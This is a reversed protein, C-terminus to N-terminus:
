GMHVNANGGLGNYDEYFAPYSKNVSHADSVTVPGDCRLAAASVAMVVRHDNRGEVTGGRLRSSGTILLGDETIVANGGIGNIADAMAQLRDSEKIRLRGAGFIRTTGEAFAATVSLAPVLDPIQAADIETAHLGGFPAAARLNEARLVGNEWQIKLGFRRYLEIAARDGQRSDERLGEILVPAGSESLAAATLFFAAQSWDGEAISDCPRYRSNGEIYWGSGTEQVAVGFQELTELTIDIYGRSELTTTIRIEGGQETLPLALLLGTIFQSSIDGPVEYVGGQLGGSITLPLGEGENVRVGHRPLLNRYVGLPREPLRGSGTFVAGTGLAAAVPIMFRLTSGSEGCFLEAEGGHRLGSGDVTLRRHEADYEFRAGLAELTGITRKMDESMIMNSIGCRGKSLASCIMLRHSVSKGPPIRVTGGFVGEPRSFCVTNM